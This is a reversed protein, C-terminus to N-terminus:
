SESLLTVIRQIADTASESLNNFAIRTEFVNRSGIQGSAIVAAELATTDALYPTKIQLSLTDGKQFQTETLLCMGGLSIDKIQSLENKKEPDDKRFYYVILAQSARPHMRREKGTKGMFSEKDAFIPATLSSSVVEQVGYL